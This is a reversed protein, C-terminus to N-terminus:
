KADAQVNISVSYAKLNNPKTWLLYGNVQYPEGTQLGTLTGEYPAAGVSMSVIDGDFIGTPDQDHIAVVVADTLTWGEPVAPVTFTFDIEGANTGAVATFATAPLGGAAGPSAIYGNMNANGRLIRINEGVEKNMGTFPRGKAFANWPDTLAPPAVKWVERLFAFLKRTAQQAATNPNAPVVYQRMYPVGKWKSAVMTKGIQGGAGFSLM